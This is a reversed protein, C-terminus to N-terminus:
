CPACEECIDLGQITVFDERDGDKDCCDCTAPEYDLDVSPDQVTSKIKALDVICVKRDKGYRVQIEPGHKVLEEKNM